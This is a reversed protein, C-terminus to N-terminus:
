RIQTNIRTYIVNKYHFHIVSEGQIHDDAATNEYKEIDHGRLITM